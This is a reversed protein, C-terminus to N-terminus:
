GPVWGLGASMLASSLGTSVWCPQAEGKREQLFALQEPGLGPCIAGHHEPRELSQGQTQTPIILPFPCHWTGAPSSNGLDPQVACLM